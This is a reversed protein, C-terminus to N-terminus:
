QKKDDTVVQKQQLVGLGSATRQVCLPAMGQHRQLPKEGVVPAGRRGRRRSVGVLRELSVGIIVEESGGSQEREM